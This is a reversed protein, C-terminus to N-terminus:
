YIVTNDRNFAGGLLRVGMTKLPTIELVLAPDNYTM